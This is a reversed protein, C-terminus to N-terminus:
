QRTLNGIAGLEGVSNASGRFYWRYVLTNATEDTLEVFGQDYCIIEGADFTITERFLLQAPQEEVLTLFGGCTLSPYSILTQNGNIEIRISWSLGQQQGEGVWIGAKGELGNGIPPTAQESLEKLTNELHAIAQSGDILVMCSSDNQGGNAVLNAVESDFNPSEFDLELNAASLLAEGSITIGNDPNCDQDLSQLLRAMNVVGTNNIDGVGALELPTLIQAAEVAPFQLDGLGFVVTEGPLFRFGGAANTIGRQSDTSYNLGEVASDVFRGTMVTAVNNFQWQGDTFQMNAFTPDTKSVNEPSDAFKSLVHARSTGKGLNNVWFDIGSQAGSRGLVNRFLQEVYQRDTLEGYKTTFEPSGYFEDAIDVVSQGRGYADAWFNLGGVKPDRDFAASYLRALSMVKDVTPENAAVQVPGLLTLGFVVLAAIINMPSRNQQLM